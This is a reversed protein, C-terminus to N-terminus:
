RPIMGFAVGEEMRELDELVGASLGVLVVEPTRREEVVNALGVRVVVGAVVLEARVEEFPEHAIADHEEHSVVEIEQTRWPDRAPPVRGAVEAVELAQAAPIQGPTRGVCVHGRGVCGERQEIM